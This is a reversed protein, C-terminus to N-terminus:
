SYRGAKILCVVSECLGWHDWCVQYDTSFRPLTSAEAKAEAIMGELVKLHEKGLPSQPLGAEDFRDAMKEYITGLFPDANKAVHRLM